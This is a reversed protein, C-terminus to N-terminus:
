SRAEKRGILRAILRPVQRRLHQRTREDSRESGYRELMYAQTLEDLTATETGDNSSDNPAALHPLLRSEYEAPTESAQRALASKETAITHLLERYRARVSDPDLGDLAPATRKVRRLRQWWERWRQGLLSRSDLSEREEEVQEEEALVSRRRLSVRVIWLVVLVALALLVWRGILLVEPSIPQPGRTNHFPPKFPQVPPPQSSNTYHLLWGMLWSIGDFIPSLIVFIIGYLIWGVVTGLANWFPALASLVVEFTALSFVTELLIVLAIVACGLLSLALLWFRTPDAQTGDARRAHRISALRVLSLAVLGSLFFIVLSGALAALLQPGLPQPLLMAVIMIGLLIGFGIKFALSLEGYEFGRRARQMGRRWFWLVLGVDIVAGAINKGALLDPAQPGVVVALALLWGCLHLLTVLRADKVRQSLHLYEVLMAWWLLGLLLLAISGIDLASVKLTQTFLLLVLAVAMGIPQAEMASVSLPLGFREIWTSLPRAEVRTPIKMTSIRSSNM